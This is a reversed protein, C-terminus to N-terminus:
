EPYVLDIILDTKEQSLGEPYYLQLAQSLRFRIGDMKFVHAIKEEVSLKARRTIVIGEKLYDSVDEVPTLNDDSINHVADIIKDQDLDPYFPMFVMENEM